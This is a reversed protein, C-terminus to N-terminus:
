EYLKKKKVIIVAIILVLGILSMVNGIRQNITPDFSMVVSHNGEPLYIAMGRNNEIIELQGNESYATWSPFYAKNIQVVGEGGVKMFELYGTKYNILSVSLLKSTEIIDEPLEEPDRPKNFGAPMYEDSIKSTVFRIHETNEYYSTDLNNFEQPQFLRAHFYLQSVIVILAVIMMIRKNKINVISTAFILSIFLGSFNLFRWPYQIYEMFPLSDWIFKSASIMMFLSMGLLLYFTPENEAKGKKLVLYAFYIIASILLIVNIKGLSFSLGDVCGPISGGFGWNSHWLQELCVFHDPYDAGGGVQSEVNTYQAELVAPMTYFSSVLFATSFFIIISLLFEKKRNLKLLLLLSYPIIFMMMMFATLNHSIIVLAATLALPISEIVILQKRKRNKAKEYIYYISWFVLPLFAYAFFEGVAGRVYINVAHYPFYLYVVGAVIGGIRNTIRSALLYMTFFSLITGVAFIIKTSVLSDNLILNTFGGVYYPLPAYFNFIPYGYGYGLDDVWRVPFNGDSLSKSMQFVREVQTNDHVVFFGDNFLPIISPVILVLFIFLLVIRNIM